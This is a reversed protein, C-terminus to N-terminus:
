DTVDPESHERAESLKANFEDLWQRNPPLYMKTYQWCYKTQNDGNIATLRTIESEVEDISGVVKVITPTALMTDNNASFSIVERDFCDIRVIAYLAIFEKGKGM